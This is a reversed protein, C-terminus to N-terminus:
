CSMKVKGRTLSKPVKLLVPQRFYSLVSSLQFTGSHLKGCEGMHRIGNHTKTKKVDERLSRNWYQGTYVTRGNILRECDPRTAHLRQTLRRRAGLVRQKTQKQWTVDERKTWLASSSSCTPTTSVVQSVFICLFWFWQIILPQRYVDTIYFFFDLIFFENFWGINGPFLWTHDSFSFM